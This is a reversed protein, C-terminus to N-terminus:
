QGLVLDVSSLKGAICELGQAALDHAQALLQPGAGCADRLCYVLVPADLVLLVPSHQVHLEALIRM